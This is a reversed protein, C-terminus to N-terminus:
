RLLVEIRKKRFRRKKKLARLNRKFLKRVFAIEITNLKDKYRNLVVSAEKFKKYFLLERIFLADMFAREMKSEDHRLNYRFFVGLCNIRREYDKLEVDNRIKQIKYDIIYHVRDLNAKPTQYLTELQETSLPATLIFFGLLIPDTYYKKCDEYIQEVIEPDSSKNKKSYSVFHNLVRLEHEIQFLTKGLTSRIQPDEIRHKIQKVMKKGLIREDTLYYIISLYMLIRLFYTEYYNRNEITHFIEYGKELNERAKSLQYNGMYAVGIHFYYLIQLDSSFQQFVEQVKSNLLREVLSLAYQQRKIAIAIRVLWGFTRIAGRYFGTISFYSLCKELLNLNRDITRSDVIVEIAYSYQIFYRTYDSVQNNVVIEWAELLHKHAKNLDNKLRFFTWLLHEYLAVCDPSDIQKLLQEMNKLYKEFIPLNAPTDYIMRCELDLLYFLMRPTAFAAIMQHCSSILNLAKNSKVNATYIRLEPLINFFDEESEVKPLKQQLNKYVTSFVM